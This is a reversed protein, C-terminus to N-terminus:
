LLAPKEERHLAHLSDDVYNRASIIYESNWKISFNIVEGYLDNTNQLRVSNQIDAFPLKKPVSM